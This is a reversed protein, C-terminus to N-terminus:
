ELLPVHAFFVSEHAYRALPGISSPHRHAPEDVFFVCMYIPTPLQYEVIRTYASDELIDAAPDHMHLSIYVYGPRLANAEIFRLCLYHAAFRKSKRRM